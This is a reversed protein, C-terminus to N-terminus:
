RAVAHNWERALIKDEIGVCVLQIKKKKIECCFREIESQTMM